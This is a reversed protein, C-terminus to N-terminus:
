RFQAGLRRHRRRVLTTRAACRGPCAPRDVSSWVVLGSPRGRGGHASVLRGSALVEHSKRLVFPGDLFLKWTESRNESGRSESFRPSVSQEKYKTRQLRREPFHPFPM